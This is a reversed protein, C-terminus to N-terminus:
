FVVDRSAPEHDFALTSNSTAAAVRFQLPSNLCAAQEDEVAELQKKSWSVDIYYAIQYQLVVTPPSPFTLCYPHLIKM